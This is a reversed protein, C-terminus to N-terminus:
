AASASRRRKSGKSSADNTEIMVECTPEADAVASAQAAADVPAKRLWKQALYRELIARAGSAFTEFEAVMRRPGPDDIEDYVRVIRADVTIPAGCGPLSIEARVREGAPVPEDLEFRMGGLSVEYLHGERASPSTASDASGSHAGAAKSSRKRIPNVVVSSYMPDVTFRDHQRRDTSEPM